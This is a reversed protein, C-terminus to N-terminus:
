FQILFDFISIKMKIKVMLPEKFLQYHKKNIYFRNLLDEKIFKHIFLDFLEFHIRSLDEVISNHHSTAFLYFTYIISPIEFFTELFKEKLVLKIGSFENKYQDLLFIILERLQHFITAYKENEYLVHFSQQFESRALHKTIVAFIKNSLSFVYNTM